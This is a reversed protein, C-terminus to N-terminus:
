LDQQLTMTQDGRKVEIKVKGERKAQELLQVDSQGQGVSKGNLSLIRDGPKLGLKSRLASPTQETVEYGQGGGTNVGMKKLYDDKDEGMQEIAQGLANQSTSATPSSTQVNNLKNQDEAAEAGDPQYLNDIRAFKLERTAGNSQKLVVHEWYVAALQYGSDGLSDGVVYREAVEGVKIVASSKNGSSAVMVGQLQMALDENVSTTAGQEYFLSFSSINPVQVQKSGLVVPEPQMVQPPALVWWFVAALKWCLALILLLLIVPSIRDLKEWQINQFQEQISM